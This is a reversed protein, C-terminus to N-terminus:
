ASQLRSWPPQYDLSARPRERNYLRLWAPLAQRRAWSSRYSQVYAWERLLTQIFARGQREHTAHVCPHSIRLALSAYAERFARSVDGSGNDSMVRRERVAHAAFWAMARHLFAACTVGLQDACVEVYALRSCDDVAVHVISGGPAHRPGADTGM